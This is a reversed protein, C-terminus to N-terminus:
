HPAAQRQGEKKGGLIVNLHEANVAESFDPVEDITGQGKLFRATKELSALVESDLTLAYSHRQMARGAVDPPLGTAKALIETTEEPHDKVFVEARHLARLFRRVDDPRKALLGSKALVLIPYNNGLGGLTALERAGRVEALSPTPESAVFADVSGALLAEPMESPRMDVIRVQSADLGRSALFALFGGYTSTGKKAAVTEGILDAPTRIASDAKVMLRHRHEGRGHSAIITIPVRRSVTIIATTDGMTGIDASGSYLAEACAPGSNFRFPEVDLGEDAFFGKEVAVICAASGIRNQYAFRIAHPGRKPWPLAVIVFAVGGVTIIGLIAAKLARPSLKKTM